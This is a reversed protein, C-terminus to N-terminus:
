LFLYLLFLTLFFIWDHCWIRSAICAKNMINKSLKKKEERQNLIKDNTSSNSGNVKEIQNCLELIESHLTEDNDSSCRSVDDADNTIKEQVQIKADFPKQVDAVNVEEVIHVSSNSRHSAAATTEINRDDAFLSSGQYKKLTQIDTHSHYFLGHFISSIHITLPFTVSSEHLVLFRHLHVCNLNM